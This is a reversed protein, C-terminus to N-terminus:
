DDAAAAASAAAAAAAHAALALAALAAAAASAASAAASTLIQSISRSCRLCGHLSIHCRLTKTFNNLSQRRKVGHRPGRTAHKQRLHTKFGHDILQALMSRLQGSHRYLFNRRQNTWSTFSAVMPRRRPTILTKHLTKTSTM